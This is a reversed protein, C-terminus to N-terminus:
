EDDGDDSDPDTTTGPLDRPYYEDLKNGFEDFEPEAGEEEVKKKDAEVKDRWERASDEGERRTSRDMAANLEIGLDLLADTGLGETLAQFRSLPTGSVKPSPEAEKRGEGAREREHRAQTEERRASRRAAAERAKQAPSQLYGRALELADGTGGDDQTSAERQAVLEGTVDTVYQKTLEAAAARARQKNERFQEQHLSLGKWTQEAMRPGRFMRRGGVRLRFRGM